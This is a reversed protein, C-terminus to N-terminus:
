AMVAGMGAADQLERVARERVMEWVCRRQAKVAGLGERIEELREVYERGDDQLERLTALHKELNELQQEPKSGFPGGIYPTGGSEGNAHTASSPHSTLFHKHTTPTLDPARKVRRERPDEEEEDVRGRRGNPGASARAGEEQDEEERKPVVDQGAKTRVDPDEAMVRWLKGFAIRMHAEGEILGATARELDELLRARFSHTIARDMVFSAFTHHAPTPPGYPACAPPSPSRLHQLSPAPPSAPRGAYPLLLKIRKRAHEDVQLM